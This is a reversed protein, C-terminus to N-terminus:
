IIGKLLPSVSVSPLFSLSPEEEEEKKKKREGKANGGGEWSVNCWLSFWLPGQWVFFSEFKLKVFFSNNRFLLIYQWSICLINRINNPRTVINRLSRTPRGVTSHVRRKERMMEWPLLHFVSSLFLHHHHAKSQPLLPGLLFARYLLVILEVQPNHYARYLLLLLLLLLPMEFLWPWCQLFYPEKRGKWNTELTCHPVVAIFYHIRKENHINSTTHLQLILAYTGLLWWLPLPLM